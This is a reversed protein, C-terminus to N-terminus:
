NRKPVASWVDPSRDRPRVEGSPVVIRGRWEILPATVRSFPVQGAQAWTNQRVDFALIDRAFGPHQILPKFDVSTGDDGSLVVLSQGVAPAPSPAGVAPRPLDNLRTWGQGPTYCYADRLRERVPQGAEGARLRAGSFLYFSRQYEGGVALMREPGPWPDLITWRPNPAALDLKWFTRLAVTAAPSEVGGALYVAHGIRAGSGLACPRPLPPLAVIRLQGRHWTLQFVEAHHRNSDSGGCCIVGDSTTVSVGYGLPYPLKFGTRWHAEPSELVYVTDYWKKQLPDAWKDGTINAGGAVILAGGSV